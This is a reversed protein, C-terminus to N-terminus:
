VDNELMIRIKTVQEAWPVIGFRNIVASARNMNGAFGNMAAQNQSLAEADCRTRTDFHIREPAEKLETRYPVSDFLDPHRYILKYGQSEAVDMIRDLSERKQTLTALARRLAQNRVINTRGADRLATWSPLSTAIIGPSHSTSVVDCEADTLDRWAVKGFLVDSASEILQLAKIRQAILQNSNQELELVDQYLAQLFVAEEARDIRSQNWANVQLGLLIGIMVIVIELSVTVWDQRRFAEAIRRLIM